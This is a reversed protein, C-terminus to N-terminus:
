LSESKKFYDILESDIETKPLMSQIIYSKVKNDVQDSILSIFGLSDKM